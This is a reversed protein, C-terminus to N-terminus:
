DVEAAMDDMIRAIEEPSVGPKFVLYEQNPSDRGTEWRNTGDPNVHCYGQAVTNFYQTWQNTLLLVAVQDWSARGAFNNYLEYARYVPNKPTLKNKLYARGTVIENGVEWGAFRVPRTWNELCYVTSAPDPFYFNAEKGAPFLGGMCLWRSVKRAVLEKGPLPSYRDPGSQLLQQLTTLHGITVLTVSTDPSKSLLRRYLAVGDPAKEHSRLRRPFAESIQRTYRYRSQHFLEKQNELFGVPLRPRGYYHNIASVCTPAYPDDSTVVVGLLHIQKRDALTHLMALAEADDVDSDIDTDLIVRSQGYIPVCLCLVLCFLALSRNM